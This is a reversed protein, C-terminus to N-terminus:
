IPMGSVTLLCFIIRMLIQKTQIVPTNHFHGISSTGKRKTRSFALYFLLVQWLFTIRCGIMVSFLPGGPVRPISFAALNRDALSVDVYDVVTPSGMWHKRELERVKNCALDFVDSLDPPPFRAKFRKEAARFPTWEQEINAPRNKTAKLFQRQAKKYEPTEPLLM